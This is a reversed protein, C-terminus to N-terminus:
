GASPMFLRRKVFHRSLPHHPKVLTLSSAMASQFFAPLLTRASGLSRATPRMSRLYRTGRLYFKWSVREVQGLMTKGQRPMWRTIDLSGGVFGRILYAKVAGARCSAVAQFHLSQVHMSPRKLTNQVVKM